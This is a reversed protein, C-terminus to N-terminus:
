SLLKKLEWIEPTSPSSTFFIKSFISQKGKQHFDTEVNKGAIINGVTGILGAKYGLDTAIRYLLTTTTTKGNTGTVGVIKMNKYSNGFRLGVCVNIFRRVSFPLKDYDIKKFINKM